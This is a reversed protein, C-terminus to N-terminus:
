KILFEKYVLFSLFPHEKASLHVNLLRNAYDILIRSYGELKGYYFYLAVDLLIERYFAKKVPTFYSIYVKDIIDMVRQEPSRGQLILKSKKADEIEAKFEKMDGKPLSLGAVERMKFLNKEDDPNYIHSLRVPVLDLVPHQVGKEDKLLLIDPLASLGSIKKIDTKKLARDLKYLAYEAPVPFFGPNQEKFGELFKRSSQQSSYNKVGREQNILFEFFDLSSTQINSLIFLLLNSSTSDPISLLADYIVKEVKEHEPEKKQEPKFSDVEIGKSKVIYLAKKAAKRVPKSEAKDLAFAWLTQIIHKIEKEDLIRLIKKPEVLILYKLEQQEM